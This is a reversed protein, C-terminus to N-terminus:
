IKNGLIHKDKLVTKEQTVKREVFCITGFPCQAWFHDDSGSRCRRCRNSYNGDQTKRNASDKGMAFVYSDNASRSNISKNQGRREVTMTFGEYEAALCLAEDVSKPKSQYISWRMDQDSLADVFCDLAVPERLPSLYAQRVLCQHGTSVWGLVRIM